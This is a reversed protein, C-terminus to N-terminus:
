SAEKAEYFVALSGPGIHSASIYDYDYIEVEKVGGKLLLDKLLLFSSLQM